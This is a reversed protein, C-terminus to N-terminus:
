FDAGNKSFHGNGRRGHKGREKKLPNEWCSHSSFLKLCRGTKWSELKLFQCWKGSFVMGGEVSKNM